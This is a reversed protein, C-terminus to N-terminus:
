LLWSHYFNTVKFLTGSYHPLVQFLILTEFGIWARALLGRAQGASLMSFSSAQAKRLIVSTNNMWIKLKWSKLGTQTGATNPSIKV